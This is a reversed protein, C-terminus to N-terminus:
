AGPSSSTAASWPEIGRYLAAMALWTSKPVEHVGAEWNRWTRSTVGLAEAAEKQTFGMTARWANLADTM